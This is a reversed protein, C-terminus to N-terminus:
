GRAFADRMYDLAFEPMTAPDLDAPARVAVIESLEDDDLSALRANLRALAEDAPWPVRTERMYATRFPEIVLTWGAEVAIEDPQLGTEELLERELSGALDVTGDPLVDAPDPTGAPFYIKGANVTHPGMRGLLFAGDAARLAAMAFGNRVPPGPWGLDRWAIFSAYDTPAYRARCVEGEIAGAHQILVTGNFLRPQAAVRAAWLADIEARRDRAFSWEFPAICAEVRGIRVLRSPQRAGGTM